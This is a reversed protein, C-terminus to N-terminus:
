QISPTSSTSTASSSSTKKAEIEKLKIEINKAVIGKAQSPVFDADIGKAIWMLDKKTMSSLSAM